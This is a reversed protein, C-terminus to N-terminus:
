MRHHPIVIKPKNVARSGVDATIRARIKMKFINRGLPFPKPANRATRAVNNSYLSATDSEDDGEGEGV